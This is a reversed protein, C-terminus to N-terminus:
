YWLPEDSIQIEPEVAVLKGDKKEAIVKGDKWLRDPVTLTVPPNNFDLHIESLDM